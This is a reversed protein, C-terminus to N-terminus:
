SLLRRAADVAARARDLVPVAADLAAQQPVEVSLPVAPDLAALFARIDFVGEGPLLRQVGAEWEIRDAAMQAPGDAIQAMRVHPDALAAMSAPGDGGRMIHLLDATVGVDARGIRDIEALTEALTRVQSPPYFEIALGIGYGAALEALEALKETRRAPDRDYCLINALPAGLDAGAELAPAFDAVITRGAMTFPYILDVTIGHASLADRTARRAARDTVLNYPPMAPLVAMSHLFPCIGTCGTAAALDALQWPTTDTVTIHDLSLSRNAAM